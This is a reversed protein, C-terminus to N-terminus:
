KQEEKQCYQCVGDKYEHQCISQLERVREIKEAVAKDLVFTAGPVSRKEIFSFCENIEAKIRQKEM